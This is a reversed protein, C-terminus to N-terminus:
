KKLNNPNKTPKNNNNNQTQNTITTATTKKGKFNSNGGTQFLITKNHDRYFM